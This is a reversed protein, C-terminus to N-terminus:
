QAALAQSEGDASPMLAIFRCSSVDEQVFGARRLATLCSVIAGSNTTPRRARVREVLEWQNAGKDGYPILEEWVVQRLSGAPATSVTPTLGDPAYEPAWWVLDRHVVLGRKKLQSLYSSAWSRKMALGSAESTVVLESVGAGKTGFSRLVELLRDGKSRTDSVETTAGARGMLNGTEAHDGDGDDHEVIEAPTSPVAAWVQRRSPLGPPSASTEPATIASELLAIDHELGSREAELTRLRSRWTEIQAEANAIERVAGELRDRFGAIMARIRQELPEM